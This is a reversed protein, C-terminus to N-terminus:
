PDTSKAVEETAELKQTRKDWYRKRAALITKERYESDTSYRNALSNLKNNRYSEDSWYHVRAKAALHQKNLEHYAKVSERNKIRYSEDDKHQEYYKRVSARRAELREEDTHYKKVPM